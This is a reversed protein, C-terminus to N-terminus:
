AVDRCVHRGTREEVGITRRATVRALDLKELTDRREAGTRHFLGVDRNRYRPRTLRVGTPAARRLVLRTTVVIKVTIEHMERTRQRNRSYIVSVRGEFAALPTADLLNM